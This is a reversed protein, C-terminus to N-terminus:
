KEPLAHGWRFRTHISGREPGKTARWLCCLSKQGQFDQLELVSCETVISNALALTAVSPVERHIWDGRLKFNSRDHPIGLYSHRRTWPQLTDRPQIVARWVRSCRRLSGRGGTTRGRCRVGCLWHGYWSVIQDRGKISVSHGNCLACRDELSLM